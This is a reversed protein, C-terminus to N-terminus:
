NDFYVWRGNVWERFYVISPWLPPHLEEAWEHHLMILSEAKGELPLESTEFPDDAIHFVLTDQFLTNWVVKLDGSRIAKSNGRQWYLNSHPTLSDNDIYRLLDKGDILREAPLPCNTIKAITTFVDMSIVPSNYVTGPTIKDKWSMFFPIRTGGEFDTIKGGRLPGNDTTYTYTAGGNDSMFIVLTNEILGSTELKRILRGIADDLQKIMAYYIRKVPDKEDSFMSVYRNPAQLPTHPANYAAMLFFPGGTHDEIFSISERTIADTLHEKEEILNYNRYIGRPGSRGLSWNYQDTFDDEIRQDTIGETGIPSYLTHADFFGYQYDFGFNSPLNREHM